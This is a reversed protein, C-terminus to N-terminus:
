RARTRRAATKRRQLEQNYPTVWCKCCHASLPVGHSCTEERDDWIGADFPVFTTKKM